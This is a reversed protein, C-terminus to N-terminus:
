RTTAARWAACRCHWRRSSRSGSGCTSTAPLTAASYTLPSLSAVQHEGAATAQALRFAVSVDPKGTEDPAPNIVQLVVNVPEGNTFVDDPAPTIGMAGIAYPHAAQQDATYPVDRVGVADALIVDSVGFEGAQAVPLELRQRVVQAVPVKARGTDVDM